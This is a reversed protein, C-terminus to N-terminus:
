RGPSWVQLIQVLRDSERTTYTVMLPLVVLIRDGYFEEGQALPDTSLRQEIENSAEAVQDRETSALWIEAARKGCGSAL